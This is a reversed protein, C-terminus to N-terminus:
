KEEKIKKEDCKKFYVDNIEGKSRKEQLFEWLNPYTKKNKKIFLFFDKLAENAGLSQLGQNESFAISALCFEVNKLVRDNRLNSRFMRFEVLNKDTFNVWIHRNNNKLPHLILEGNPKNYGNESRQAIISFIACFRSLFYATKAWTLTTKYGYDLTIHCGYDCGANHGQLNYLSINKDTFTKKFLSSDRYLEEIKQPRFICEVGIEDDLSGDEEFYVDGTKTASEAFGVRDSSNLEIEIGVLTENKKREPIEFNPKSHYNFIMGLDEEEEEEPEYHYYLGDVEFYNEGEECRELCFRLSCDEFECLTYYQADYNKENIDCFFYDSSDELMWVKEGDQSTVLVCDDICEIKGDLTMVLDLDDRLTDFLAGGQRKVAEIILYEDYDVIGDREEYCTIVGAPDTLDYNAMNRLENMTKM